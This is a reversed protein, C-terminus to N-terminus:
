NPTMVRAGPDSSPQGSADPYPHLVLEAGLSEEYFSMAKRCDGDFSLYSTVSKM